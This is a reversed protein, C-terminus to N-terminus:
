SVCVRSIVAYADINCLTCDVTHALKLHMGNEINYVRDFSIFVNFM